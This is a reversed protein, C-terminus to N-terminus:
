AHIVFASDQKPGENIFVRGEYPTATGWKDGMLGQEQREVFYAHGNGFVVASDKQAVQDLSIFDVQHRLGLYTPVLNTNEGNNLSLLAEGYTQAGEHGMAWARKAMSAYSLTALGRTAPDNGQYHTATAAAELESPSLSLQFGDRMTVSYTGDAEVVVQDFIEAGFTHMAAKIVATSACNGRDTQRFSGFLDSDLSTEGRLLRDLAARDEPTFQLGSEPLPAYAINQLDEASIAGDRSNASHFRALIGGSDTSSAVDFANLYNPNALLNGALDKFEAPTQSLNLGTELDYVTFLDDQRGLSDFYEFASQGDVPTQLQSRVQAFSGIDGGQENLWAQQLDGTSILHDVRTGTAVDLADLLVPDALVAQASDRAAAPASADAAVRNLDSIGILGDQRGGAPADLIQQHDKLGEIVQQRDVASEGSYGQLQGVLDQAQQQPHLIQQVMVQGPGTLAGALGGLATIGLASGFAVKKWASGKARPRSEASSEPASGPVSNLTVRDQPTHSQPEVAKSQSTGTLPTLHSLRSSILM